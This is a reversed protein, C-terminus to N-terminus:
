YVGRHAYSTLRHRWDVYLISFVVWLYKGTAWIVVNVVLKPVILPDTGIIAPVISYFQGVNDEEKLSCWM